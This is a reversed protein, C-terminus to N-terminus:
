KEQRGIQVATARATVALDDIYLMHTESSQQYRAISELRHNQGLNDLQRITKM